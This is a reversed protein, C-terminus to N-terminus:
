LPCGDDSVQHSLKFLLKFISPFLCASSALLCLISRTHYCRNKHRTHTLQTHECHLRRRPPPPVRDLAINETTNNATTQDAMTISANAIYQKTQEIRIAQKRAVMFIRMYLVFVLVAGAMCIGSWTILYSFSARQVFACVGDFENWGMLPLLGFIVATVWIVVATLGVTCPRMYQHYRLPHFVAIYKEVALAVLSLLSATMTAFGLGTEDLLLCLVETRRIAIYKEMVAVNWSM